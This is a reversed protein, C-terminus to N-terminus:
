RMASAIANSSTSMRSLKSQVHLHPPVRGVEHKLMGDRILVCETHEELSVIGPSM